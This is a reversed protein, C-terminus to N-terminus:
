FTVKLLGAADTAGGSSGPTVSITKGSGNTSISVGYPTSPALGAVLLTHVGAPASFSTTTFSGDASVPFYVATSGFATGDFATGGSAQLYAATTMATGSDAGQLVHLFRTNVPKSPDEVTMVYQSPELEAVITLDALVNRASITSGTPLLSQVFLKQGSPLTETAVKGSIVPNTILTLNWRKFLGANQSTARDYVVIYDGNLWLISRTALTINDFSDAPTFIAPRNYLQTMDTAAYVYGPGSSNLMTPDGGNQGIMWQSGNALEGQEWFQIIQAPNACGACANQLALTNHYVTTMGLGNDDYNSLEKTLWEGKRFLEFQGATADQHNISEWCARYDFMSGTPTWDSHAVIRGCGPDVFITPYSPRPDTAATYPVAPDYLLYYQITEALSYPNTMRDFFKQPGGQVVNYNFWRADALHTSQGNEQELLALLAFPSMYDPTVYLRLLDGYSAFQYVQGLYQEGPATPTFGTPTLSSFVGKVYRDWVPATLLGIQPGTYNAYAPDNFGATQLALLGSLLNGYSVGYLMGEPPLGGSALGFGSGDGPLGYESVVNPGEGYMAYQQYLWAGLGDSLYSRLSNGLVASSQGPNVVPDDAPDIALAMMIMLRAHATYYNNAAFRYPKNNPLLQPDNMVGPLAPSDGGTTSATECAQEWMMFVKRIVAKDSATLIPKQNADVANYIWDVMLPWEEGSGSARNYTAFLRDRFPAGSLTGQAAQNMAYMLMNRAYQAYKIRNNPDPDILSNFALIAGYEETLSGTYGQTDGPDPYNPNAVGGPFFQTNYLNVAKNLVPLMGQQYVQNSSTAWSQLRPVDNQTIWLRPHSAVPYPISGQAPPAFNATVTADTAPMSLTTSPVTANQVLTGTWDLFAQGAPPTNAKISVTTGTAYSGSGTGNVVTLAHTTVPAAPTGSAEASNGSEGASNVASVVYFYATGNTLGTDM